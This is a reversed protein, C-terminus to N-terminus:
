HYIYLFKQMFNLWADPTLVGSAYPYFAVFLVLCLVLYSVLVVKGLRPKWEHIRKLLLMVGLCLFPVSAFYHYIYTGRPVLVWPLFQALLGILVFSVAVSGNKARVHMMQM